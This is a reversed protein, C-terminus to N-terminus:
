NPGISVISNINEFYLKDIPVMDNMYTLLMNITLM